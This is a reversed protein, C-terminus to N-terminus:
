MPALTFIFSEPSSARSGVYTWVIPSPSEATSTPKMPATVSCRGSSTEGVPM